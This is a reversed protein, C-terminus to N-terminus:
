RPPRVPSLPEAREDAMGLVRELEQDQVPKALLLGGGDLFSRSLDADYGDTLLVLAGAEPRIREFFEVWNLGPLRVSSFVIDFRLRQAMEVGEEASAIPVVRHGWEGLAAVLQRQVGADPEVVLVTMQRRSKKRDVRVKSAPERDRALPLEVQFQCRAATLRLFRIEGGYSQVIGRCVDLGRGHFGPQAEAPRDPSLPDSVPPAAGHPEWLRTAYGIEVLVRNALIGSSVSIIKQPAEAVSQEAHVLLNLFVEEMQGQAGLVYIPEHALRNEVKVGATEWESGRFRLLGALLDNIEVLKGDSVGARGFSVLRTVIDAARQSEAALVRLDREGSESSRTLLAGALKRISELPARLENAVGSILQGTAALKESRFLQERMSQQDQLRLSTAVQNALHQTAAQEEQTFYRISGSHDVQLVGMLENQSFMPAFLISRPLDAARATKAIFPSRRTDPINLLARNRFCVCAAAALGGPPADMAVSVPDPDGPGAVQDLSKARRNYVYLRVGTAGSVTPIVAGLKSAIEGPSGAAVIEEGLMNLTRLTRRQAAMRRERVWWGILVVGVVGAAALLVLPPLGPTKSILSVSSVSPVLIQFSGDYPPLPCYQTAIGTARIRDGRTFGSLEVGPARRTKPLFITVFRGKGGVSLIDGGANDGVGEVRSEVAVYVGLYRLSALAAVTVEKPPPPAGAGVVRIRSPLLVPMGGRKSIMGEAELWQGPSLNSFQEATGLLVLGYDQEDQVPVYYSDLVWLPKYSIQGKVIVDQNEYLPEFDPGARSAAQQLTVRVQASAASALLLWAAFWLTRRVTLRPTRANSAM